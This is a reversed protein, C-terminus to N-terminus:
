VGVRTADTMAPVVVSASASPTIFLYKVFARACPDKDDVAVPSVYVDPVPTNEKVGPNVIGPVEDVVSQFAAYIFLIVDADDGNNSEFLM